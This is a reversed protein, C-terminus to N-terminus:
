TKLLMPEFSIPWESEFLSNPGFGGKTSFSRRTVSVVTVFYTSSFPVNTGPNCRLDLMQQNVWSVESTAFNNSYTRAIHWSTVNRHKIKIGGGEWQFADCHSFILRREKGLSSTSQSCLNSSQPADTHCIIRTHATSRPLLFFYM